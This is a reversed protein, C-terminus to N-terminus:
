KVRMGPEAGADPAVLFIGPGEGSAALVMGESVGFRMKRPALNAVMVTLRGKLSEPSYAAKIGAFVTRQETGLDLTLKVLKDAGEVQEANAIRAVRLDIKGFDDISIPESVTAEETAHQQHQAHRQPAAAQPVSQVDFLADLQKPDVRTMLHAYPAVREPLSDADSWTFERGLGFLETAVRRAVEPLVPALLVSLLKFGHLTRSCIDQLEARKAPDKALTWPQKADFEGNIRDAAAMVDRLAKGFERAEYAEAVLKAAARGDEVLPRTDGIYALRGEFHKNIFNAARSAINVYKGVLDSNVRALFDDPNFDVDEVNANLKAAIYYRLWEPNM